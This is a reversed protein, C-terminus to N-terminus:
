MEFCNPARAEWPPLSPNPSANYPLANIWWMGLNDDPAPWKRHDILDIVNTPDPKMEWGNLQIQKTLCSAGSERWIDSREDIGNMKAIISRPAAWYFLDMAESTIQWIGAWPIAKSFDFQETFVSFQDIKPIFNDGGYDYVQAAGGAIVTPNLDFHADWKRLADKRLISYDCMVICIENKSLLLGTNIANAQGYPMKPYCKPKSPVVFSVPYGKLYLKQLVKRYRPKWDDVIIVEYNEKPYDLGELGM